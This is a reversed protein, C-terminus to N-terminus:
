GPRSQRDDGIGRHIRLEARARELDGGGMVLDVVLDAQAVPERDEVDEVSVAVSL